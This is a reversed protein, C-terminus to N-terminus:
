ATTLEQHHACPQGSVHQAVILLSIFFVFLSMWNTKRIWVSNGHVTLWVDSRNTLKLSIDCTNPFQTRQTATFCSLCIDSICYNLSDFHLHQVTCHVPSVCCSVATRVPCLQTYHLVTCYLVSVFVLCLLFPITLTSVSLTM